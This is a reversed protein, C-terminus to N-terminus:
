ERGITPGVEFSDETCWRGDDRDVVSAMVDLVEGAVIEEVFIRVYLQGAIMNGANGPEEIIMTKADYGGFVMEGQTLRVSIFPSQENEGEAIGAGRVALVFMPLGQPGIIIPVVDGTGLPVFTRQSPDGSVCPDGTEADLCSGLTLLEQDACDLPAGDPKDPSADNRASSDTGSCAFCSLFCAMPLSPIAHFITM